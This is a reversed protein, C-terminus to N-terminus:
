TCVHNYELISLINNVSEKIKVISKGGLIVFSGSPFLLATPNEKKRIVAACFYHPRLNIKTELNQSKLSLIDIKQPFSFKGSATSCDIQFSRYVAKRNKDQKVFKQKFLNLAHFPDSDFNKCGTINVTKATHFCTFVFYSARWVFFNHFVKIKECTEKPVFIFNDIVFRCKVNSIKFQLNVM